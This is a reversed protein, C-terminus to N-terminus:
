NKPKEIVNKIRNVMERVSLTGKVIYDAAGLELAQKKVNEDGVITFIIIPINKIKPDKKIEQLLEIGSGGPFMLDLLVADPLEEQIKHMGEQPDLATLLEIGEELLNPQLIKTLLVDDEIALIKKM